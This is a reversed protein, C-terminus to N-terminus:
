RALRVAQGPERDPPPGTHWPTDGRTHRVVETERDDHNPCDTHRDWRRHEVRPWPGGVEVSVGAPIAGGDLGAVVVMAAMGAAMTVLPEDITPSTPKRPAAVSGLLDHGTRM